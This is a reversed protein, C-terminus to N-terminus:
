YQSELTTILLLPAHWHRGLCCGRNEFIEADAICEEHRRARQMLILWYLDCEYYVSNNEFCGGDVIGGVYPM